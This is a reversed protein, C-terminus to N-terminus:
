LIKKKLLFRKVFFVILISIYCGAIVDSLYHIHSVARAISVIAALGYLPFRLKPAFLSISCCFATIASSHGSPFSNFQYEISFPMMTYLNEDWLMFPRSRGILVKMISVIIGAIIITVSATIAMSFVFVIKKYMPLLFYTSKKRYRCIILIIGTVVIIIGLFTFLVFGNGIESILQFYYLLYYMEEEIYFSFYALPRDIFVICVLIIFTIVIFILINLRFIPTVKGWYKACTTKVKNVNFLM